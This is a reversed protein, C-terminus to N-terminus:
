RPTQGQGEQDCGPVAERVKKHDRTQRADIAWKGHFQHNRKAPMRIHPVPITERAFYTLCTAAKVCLKEPVRVFEGLLCLHLMWPWDAGYEGAASPRLGGVQRAASARFVGHIAVWWNTPSHAMALGRMLRRRVGDLDRFAKPERTGDPQVLELDSFALVARPNAELAHALKEVYTPDVTDDHFALFMLEGSAQGMLDNTNALWGLNHERAVVRVNPRGAAFEKVVSLTRDTSADDGVLIELDEWTQAALSRLAELIFGESNYAPVIATVRPKGVATV